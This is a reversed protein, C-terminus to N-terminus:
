DNLSDWLNFFEQLVDIFVEFICYLLTIPWFLCKLLFFKFQAKTKFDDYMDVYRMLGGSAFICVIYFVGLILVGM